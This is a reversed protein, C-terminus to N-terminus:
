AGKIQLQKILREAETKSWEWMDPRAHIDNWVAQYDGVIEYFRYHRDLVLMLHMPFQENKVAGHAEEQNHKNKLPVCPVCPVSEVLETKIRTQPATTQERQENEYLSCLPVSQNGSNQIATKMWESVRM